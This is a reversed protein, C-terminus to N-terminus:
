AYTAQGEFRLESGCYGSAGREGSCTSKGSFAVNLTRLSGLIQQTVDHGGHQCEREACPVRFLAPASAVVILRAHAPQVVHNDRYFSLSLRLSRLQPVETILRPANDENEQRVRRREIAERQRGYRM